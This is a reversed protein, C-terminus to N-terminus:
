KQARFTLCGKMEQLLRSNHGESSSLCSQLNLLPGSPLPEPICGMQCSSLFHSSREPLSKDRQGLFKAIPEKTSWFGRARRQTVKVMNGQWKFDPNESNGNQNQKKALGLYYIHLTCLM